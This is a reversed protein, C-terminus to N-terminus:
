VEHEGPVVVRMMVMGAARAAPRLQARLAPRLSRDAVNDLSAVGGRPPTKQKLPVIISKEFSSPNIGATMWSAALPSTSITPKM